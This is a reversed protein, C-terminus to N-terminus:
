GFGAFNTPRTPRVPLYRLARLRKTLERLWVAYTDLSGTKDPGEGTDTEHIDAEKELWYLIEGVTEPRKWRGVLAQDRTNSLVFHREEAENLMQWALCEPTTTRHKQLCVAFEAHM